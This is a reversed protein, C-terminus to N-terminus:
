WGHSSCLSTQAVLLPRVEDALQGVCEALFTPRNVLSIDLVLEIHGKCKRAIHAKASGSSDYDAITVVVGWDRSLVSELKEYHTGGFESERLISDADYSGPEWHTATDSVRVFHANAMYSMAVVDGIIARVTTANMSGSDDLIVLNERQPAHHVQARYDGVTPRRANMKAMTNFVMAGQKGPMLGFVDELKEAVAKISDAIEVELSEWMQPLIEGHPVEPAFTVAGKDAPPVIGDHWDGWEDEYGVLYDQLDLSHDGEMLADLLPSQLVKYMLNSLQIYDLEYVKAFFLLTEADPLIEKLLALSFNKGPKIEILELAEAPDSRHTLSPNTM